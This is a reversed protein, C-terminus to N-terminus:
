NATNSNWGQQRKFEEYLVIQESNLVKRVELSMQCYYLNIDSYLRGLQMQESMITASSDGGALKALLDQNKKKYDNRLPEIRGRYSEMIATIKVKQEDDAKIHKLLPALYFGYPKNFKGKDDNKDKDQKESSKKKKESSSQTFGPALSSLLMFSLAIGGLARISM